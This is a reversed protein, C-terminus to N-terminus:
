QGSHLVTHWRLGSRVGTIRIRCRYSRGVLGAVLSVFLTALTAVVVAIPAYSNAIGDSSPFLVFGVCLGVFAGITCAAVFRLWRGDSLTTALGTILAVLVLLIWRSFDVSPEIIAPWWCLASGTATLAVLLTDRSM